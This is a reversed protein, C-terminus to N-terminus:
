DDTTYNDPDVTVSTYDTKLYIVKKDYDILMKDHHRAIKHVTGENTLIWIYDDDDIHIGIVPDTIGLTTLDFETLATQRPSSVIARKDTEVVEDTYKVDLVFIYIGSKALTLEVAQRLHRTIPEGKIWYEDADSYAILSSGELTYKTGDEHVAWVRHAIIGQTPNRWIFELTITEGEIVWDFDTEIRSAREESRDSLNRLNMYPLESSFCYLKTHSVGWIFDSHPQVVIDVLDISNDSADKLEQSHAVYTDEFGAIRVDVESQQYLTFDLTSQGTMGSGIAWFSPIDEDTKSYDLYYASKYPPLRFDMTQARVFAESPNSVGYLYLGSATDWEHLSPLKENYLFVIEDTAEYGYRCTGKLQVLGKHLKNSADLRLFNEGSSVDIYLRSPISLEGSVVLPLLPSESWRGSFILYPYNPVSELLTIRDPISAIFSSLENDEVLSVEYFSGNGVEGSVVPPYYDNETDDETKRQFSFTRPLVVKQIGDIRNIPTTALHLGALATEVEKFIDDFMVGIANYFQFANSQEDSQADSWDPYFNVLRQTTRAKREGKITM